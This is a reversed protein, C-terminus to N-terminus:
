IVSLFLYVYDMLVYPIVNQHRLSLGRYLACVFIINTVVIMKPSKWTQFCKQTLRGTQFHCTSVRIWQCLQLPNLEM